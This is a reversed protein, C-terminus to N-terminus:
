PTAVTGTLIGTRIRVAKATPAPDDELRAHILTAFRLEGHLTLSKAGRRVEIALPAGPKGGGCGSVVLAVAGLIGALRTKATM